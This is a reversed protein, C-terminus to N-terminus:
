EESEEDAFLEGMSGGTAVVLRYITLIEPNPNKGTVIRWVQQRTLGVLRATESITCGRDDLMRQLRRSLNLGDITIDSPRASPEWPTANEEVYAILDPSPRFWEGRERSAAFRRHLDKELAEPADRIVGLLNLEDASGCRLGYMRGAPNGTTKGIKIKGNAASQVFYVVRENANMREM